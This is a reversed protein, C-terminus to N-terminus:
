LLPKGRDATSICVSETCGRLLHEVNWQDRWWQWIRRRSEALNWAIIGYVGHAM